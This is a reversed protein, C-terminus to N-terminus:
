VLGTLWDTLWEADLSFRFCCVKGAFSFELSCLFFMRSCFCSCVLFMHLIYYPKSYIFFFLLFFISFDELFSCSQSLCAFLGYVVYVCVCMAMSILTLFRNWRIGQDANSLFHYDIICVIFVLCSGLWHVTYFTEFSVIYMTVLEDNWENLAFCFYLM